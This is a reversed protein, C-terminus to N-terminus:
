KKYAERKEESQREKDPHTKDFFEYVDEFQGCIPSAAPCLNFLVTAKNLNELKTTIAIKQPAAKQIIQHPLFSEKPFRWLLEDVYRAAEDNAVTVLVSHGLQYQNQITECLLRTKTQNDSVELFHIPM